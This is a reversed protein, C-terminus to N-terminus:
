MLAEALNLTVKREFHKSALRKSAILYSKRESFWKKEGVQSECFCGRVLYCFARGIGGRKLDGSRLRIRVDLLRRPTSKSRRVATYIDPSYLIDSRCLKCLRQLSHKRHACNSRRSYTPRPDNSSSLERM